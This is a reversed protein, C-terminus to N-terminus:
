LHLGPNSPPSADARGQTTKSSLMSPPPAEPVLKPLQDRFVFWFAAMQMVNWGEGEVHAETSYDPGQILGEKAIFGLISGATGLITGDERIHALSKGSADRIVGQADVSGIIHRREDQIAGDKLFHAVPKGGVDVLAGNSSLKALLHYDPDKILVDGSAAAAMTCAILLFGSLIRTSTKM